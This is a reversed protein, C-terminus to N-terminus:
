KLAPVGYSVNKHKEYYESTQVEIYGNAAKEGYVKIAENKQEETYNNMDACKVMKIDSSNIKELATHNSIKGDIIIVAKKFDINKNETVASLVDKSNQYGTVKWGNDQKVEADKVTKKKQLEEFEKASIKVKTVIEIVSSNGIDGYKAKADLGKLVNISSIKNSDIDQIDLAASALEGNIIIVPKPDSVIRVTNVSTNVSTNTNVNTSINTNVASNTKADNNINSTQTNKIKIKIDKAETKENILTPEADTFNFSITGNKETIIIFGIKEIGKTTISKKVKNAGKEDKLEINIATIENNSNRKLESITTNINFKEKLTKVRQDIESDTTNKEITFVDISEVEDPNIKEIIGPGKEQAVIEVQFLLVFAVLAPIVAYYKWSNRKKSQNKNLMVIRKKILSQYFHNTIAVCNEHTTIKLLTYQYARKDSIKKAAEKDAIFELNQVISKKYLWIIPNFWFILCFFRSILVDITHNQDSHVKEHEIINELESTTYMSSNYVIYEFYSFPAINENSDIFKYDAQHNIKKGKLLSHLSQFDMAFKILFVIFGIGYITLIIYNWNIEFSEKEIAQPITLEPLTLNTMPAPDVWIVKTYILFPLIISTILGALLFWRNTNFFTEKRLLFYYACYFLVVLGSSKAIYIFLAEM